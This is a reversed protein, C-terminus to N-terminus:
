TGAVYVPFNGAAVAANIAALGEAWKSGAPSAPDLVIYQAKIYHTCFHILQAATVVGNYSPYLPDDPPFTVVRTWNAWQINPGIPVIGFNRAEIVYQYGSTGPTLTRLDRPITDPHGIGCKLPIAHQEVEQLDLTFNPHAFCNLTPYETRVLTMVDKYFKNFGPLSWLPDLAANVAFSTEEMQLGLFNEDSEYRDLLVRLFALYRASVAPLYVKAMTRGNNTTSNAAGPGNYIYGGGYAPNGRMDAPVAQVVTGDFFVAWSVMLWWRKGIAACEAQLADISSWDYTNLNTEIRGWLRGLFAGTINANPAVKSRVESVINPTSTGSGGVFPYCGPYYRMTTGPWVTSQAPPNSLSQTADLRIESVISVGDVEVDLYLNDFDVISAVQVPTLTLKYQQLALTLEAEFQARDTPTGSVDEVLTITATVPVPVSATADVWSDRVEINEFLCTIEMYWEDIVGGVALASLTATAEADLTFKTDGSPLISPNISSTYLLNDDGDFLSVTFTPVSPVVPRDVTADVRLYSIDLGEEGLHQIEIEIDEWDTILLAELQTLTIVHAEVSDRVTLEREAILNDSCYFLVRMVTSETEVDFPVYGVADDSADTNRKSILAMYKGDPYGDPISMLLQGDSTSRRVGQILKDSQLNGVRGLPYASFHFDQDVWDSGTNNAFESDPILIETPM